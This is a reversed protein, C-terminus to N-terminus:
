RVEIEFPDLTLDLRPGVPDCWDDDSLAHVIVQWRGVPLRLARDETWAQYFAANPDAADWAVGKRIPFEMPTGRRMVTENCAQAFYPDMVRGRGGVERFTVLIPGAGGDVLTATAAAGNWTLTTTLDITEGAAFTTTPLRAVLLFGGDTGRVILPGSIPPDPSSCSAGAVLLASALALAGLREGRRM